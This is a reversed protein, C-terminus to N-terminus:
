SVSTGRGVGSIRGRKGRRVVANLSQVELLPLVVEM